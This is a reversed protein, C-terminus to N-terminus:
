YIPPKSLILPKEMASSERFSDLYLPIASSSSRPYQQAKTIHAEAATGYPSKANANLRDKRKELFRHLSHKRAIPLDTSMRYRVPQYQSGSEESLYKELETIQSGCGKQVKIHPYSFYNGTGAILMIAQAQVLFCIGNYGLVTGAFINFVKDVM